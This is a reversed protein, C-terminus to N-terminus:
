ESLEIDRVVLEDFVFEWDPLHSPLQGSYNPNVTIHCIYSPFDSTCGIAMMIENLWVADPCDIEIVLAEGLQLWRLPKAIVHTPIENLGNHVDHLEEVRERSYVVTCHFDKVPQPNLGLSLAWNYLRFACNYEMYFASYTGKDIMIM